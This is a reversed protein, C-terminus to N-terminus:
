GLIEWIRLYQQKTLNMRKTVYKVSKAHEKGLHVAMIANAWRTEHIVGDDTEYRLVINDSAM